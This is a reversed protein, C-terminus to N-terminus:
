ACFNISPSIVSSLSNPYPHLIFLCLFISISFYGIVRFFAGLNGATLQLTPVLSKSARVPSSIRLGTLFLIKALVKKPASKVLAMHLSKFYTRFSPNKSAGNSFFTKM